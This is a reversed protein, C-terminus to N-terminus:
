RQIKDLFTLIEAAAEKAAIGLKRKQTLSIRSSPM